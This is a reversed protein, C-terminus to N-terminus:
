GKKPIEYDQGPVPCRNLPAPEAEPGDWNFCLTFDTTRGSQEKLTFHLRYIGAKTIRWHDNANMPHGNIEVRQRQYRLFGFKVADDCHLDHKGVELQSFVGGPHSESTTAYGRNSASWRESNTLICVVNLLTQTSRNIGKFFMSPNKGGWKMEIAAPNHKVDVTDRVYSAAVSGIFPWQKHQEGSARQVDVTVADSTPPLLKPEEPELLKMLAQQEVLPAPKVVADQQDPLREITISRGDPSAIRWRTRLPRMNHATVLIGCVHPGKGVPFQRNIGYSYLWFTWDSAETKFNQFPHLSVLVYTVFQGSALDFELKPSATDEIPENVPLLAIPPHGVGKPEPDFSVWEARVRLLPLNSRNTVEFACFPDGVAPKPNVRATVSVDAFVADVRPPLATPERHILRVLLLLIAPVWFLWVWGNLEFGQGAMVGLGLLSLVITVPFGWKEEFAM